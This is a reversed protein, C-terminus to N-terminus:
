PQQGVLNFLIVRQIEAEMRALRSEFRNDVRSKRDSSLLQIGGSGGIHNPSLNIIRDPVAQKVLEDWNESLWELDDSNVEAILEGQPLLGDAERILEILWLRYNERDDKLQRMREKLRNQVGLVLEWRLQDLQAQLKLEGAQVQRRNLRDGEMKASMVERDEELRLRETSERHIDDCQHNAKTLFEEALENARDLIAKELADVQQTDTTM